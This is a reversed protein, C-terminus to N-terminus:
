AQIGLRPFILLWYPSEENEPTIYTQMHTFFYAIPKKINSVDESEWDGNKETWGSDKKWEKRQCQM